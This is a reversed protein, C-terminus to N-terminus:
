LARVFQLLSGACIIAAVVSTVWVLREATTESYVQQVSRRHADRNRILDVVMWLSIGSVLLYFM